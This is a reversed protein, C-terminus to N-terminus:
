VGHLWPSVATLVDMLDQQEHLAQLFQGRIAVEGKLQVESQLLYQMMRRMCVLLAGLTESWSDHGPPPRPEATPHAHSTSGSAISEEYGNLEQELEGIFQSYQVDRYM